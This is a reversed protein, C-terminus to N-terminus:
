LYNAIFQENNEQSFSILSSFVAKRMNCKEEESLSFFHVINESLENSNMSAYLYGTSRHDILISIDGVNSSIVPIGYAQAELIVNPLGESLSTLILLECKRYYSDIDETKDHFFINKLGLEKIRILLNKYYAKDEVAGVFHLEISKKDDMSLISMAEILELQNKVQTIRGVHLIHHKTFETNLFKPEVLNYKLIIKKADLGYYANLKNSIKSSNVWFLNCFSRYLKIGFYSEKSDGRITCIVRAKPNFLKTLMTGILNTVPQFNICLDYEKQFFFQVLKIMALPVPKYKIKYVDISNYLRNEFFCNEESFGRIVLFMVRYRESLRNAYLVAQNQTGGSKLNNIIILITKKSSSAM